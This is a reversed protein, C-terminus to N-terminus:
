DEMEKRCTPCSRSYSTLWEKICNCHFRHACPLELLSENEEYEMQCVACKADEELLAGVRSRLRRSSFKIEKTLARVKEPTCTCKVDELNILSEYSMDIDQYEPNEQLSLQMAMEVQFNEYMGVVDESAAGLLAHVISPGRDGGARALRLLHSFLASSRSVREIHVGDPEDDEDEEDDEDMPEDDIEDPRGSPEGNEVRGHCDPEASCAGPDERPAPEDQGARDGAPGTM